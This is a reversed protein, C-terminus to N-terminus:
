RTPEDALTAIRHPRRSPPILMHVLRHVPEQEFPDGWMWLGGDAALAIASESGFSAAALWPGQRSRRVFPKAQKWGSNLFDPRSTWLSGDKKLGVAQGWSEWAVHAWENDHGVRTPGLVTATNVGLVIRLDGLRWLSGDTQTALSGVPNSSAARAWNTGQDVRRPSHCAPPNVPGFEFLGGVPPRVRGWEWLSGDTKLALTTGAGATVQAWNMDSGIRVPQERDVTTGDGLQGTDNKGWAWLSGDAKLAMFHRGGGAIARWDRDTGLQVPETQRRSNVNTSWLHYLWCWLTGDSKLAVTEVSVGPGPLTRAAIDQWAGAGSIQEPQSLPLWFPEWKWLTGNPLLIMSPCPYGTIKPIAPGSLHVSSIRPEPVLIEWSRAYLAMTTGAVFAYALLLVALNQRWLRVGPVAECYNRFALYSLVLFLTPAGVVGLLGIPEPQAHGYAMSFFAVLASTAVMLGFILSLAQLLNRVLSSAFLGVTTAGIAALAPLGLTVGLASALGTAGASEKIPKMLGTLSEGTALYGLADLLWPLVAALLVSLAYAPFLKLLFQRRRSVPLSQQWELLGLRREDAIAVAGILFPMLGWILYYLGLLIERLSVGRVETVWREAAVIAGFLLVFLLGCFLNVQQLHLEKGLLSGLAGFRRGPQAETPRGVLWSPLLAITVDGGLWAVDQRRLFLRLGLGYAAVSYTVLAAILWPVPNVDKGPKQVIWAVALSLVAPFFLTLWFAGNAQRLLLTLCLGGGYAAGAILLGITFFWGPSLHLIRNQDPLFVAALEWSVLLASGLATGLVLTKEWWLRWRSVPQSLLLSYTGHAFEKGFSSVSLLVAGLGFCPFYLPADSVGFLVPAVALLVAVLWIPGLARCEKLIRAQM